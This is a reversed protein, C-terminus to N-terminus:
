GPHRLLDADAADATLELRGSRLRDTLEPERTLAVLRASTAGVRYGARRLDAALAKGAFVVRTEAVPGNRALAALLDARDPGTARTVTRM